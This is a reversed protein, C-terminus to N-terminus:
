KLEKTIKELVIDAKLVFFQYWKESIRYAYEEVFKRAQVMKSQPLAKKGPKNRAEIRELEGESFFLDFITEYEGFIAHIHLPEHDNSYFKFIIGFYAYITPM